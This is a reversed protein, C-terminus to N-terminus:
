RSSRRLDLGYQNPGKTGPMLGPQGLAWLPGVIPIWYVLTWTGPKGLDHWRKAQIPLSLLYTPLLYLFAGAFNEDDGGEFGLWWGTVMGVIAWPLYAIVWIAALGSWFQRRNLRGKTSIFFRLWNMLDMFVVGTLSGMTLVEATAGVTFGVVASIVSLVTGVGNLKM